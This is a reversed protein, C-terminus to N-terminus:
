RLSVMGISQVELGPDIENYSLVILDPIVQETMRKFYLRVVPSALVIPQQNLGAMKQVQTVLSGMVANSVSPDLSLFSGQQTQQLSEMITQELAPDLTIVSCRQESIFRKSIARGLSQRVYETLMDPDQTTGAHDALTELITVLDRISVGEKLLNRLVKQIEGLSMLKPVLEDVVAPYEQKLNDILQQVQQRGMFEHAYKKITEILHTVIITPPDYVTYGLMEAMDRQGETIWIAPVGFVPETTKIGPLEEEVDATRIAMYHDLLLENRAVEVDRIKIMYEYPGIILNDLFRIAPMIMGFEMALQRRIIVVRDSIDGGQDAVVLPLIGYGLELTISDISLINVVNEPNRIEDAESEQITIEERKIVDKQRRGLMYGILALLAAVILFFARPLFFSLAVCTASAIYMVNRNAFMQGLLDESLNSDAGARTVIVSTATSVMVAPIQTVLGAGITLLTYREFIDGVDMQGANGMWGMAFGGIINVLTILIGAIADNKVFKSAGDMSGYFDSERQIRRRREKAEEETILGTNLDADIAMQKGPMADLTFRAAVEAVRESGRTIVLFNVIMIVAFIVFGLVVNSGAVYGGFGKIVEGAAGQGLILKIAAINLMLRFLTTVVLISPFSSMELANKIFVTNLMIILTVSINLVLLLDLAFEPVPVIFGIVIVVLAIPAALNGIRAM